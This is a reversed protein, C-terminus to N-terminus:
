VIGTYLRMDDSAQVDNPMLDWLRGNIQRLNDWSEAAIDRRGADILQNAQMQDNMSARKDVLNEFMGTLFAPMRYLITYRLNELEQSVADIREPNSSNIFTTERSLVDRLQHKDRDNGHDSVLSALEAKVEVYNQRAIDLRKSSTLEFVKEAIKRKQDELKFRDDTVDDGSLTGCKAMLGQIDGILRELNESAEHNGLSSAEDSEDQIKKELELVERALIKPEVQM